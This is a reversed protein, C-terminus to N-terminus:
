LGPAPVDKLKERQEPTLVSLAKETNQQQLEQIKQQLEERLQRLKEEQEPTVELRKLTAPNQLLAGALLRFRLEKLREVQRPQLVAEVEKRVEATRKDAKKRLEALREQRKERPLNSVEVWEQRSEDQYKKALALLKDKQEDTLSLEKQVNGQGLMWFGPLGSLGPTAAGPAGFFTGPKPGPKRQGGAKPGQALGPKALGIVAAAAALLVFMSVFRRM